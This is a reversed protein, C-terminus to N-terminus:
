RCLTNALQDIRRLLPLLRRSAEAEKQWVAEGAPAIRCERPLRGGRNALERMRPIFLWQLWQRFELRDACFPVESQMAEVPPPTSDWWELERLTQELQHLTDLLEESGRSM